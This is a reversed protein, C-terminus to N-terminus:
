NHDEPLLRMFISLFSYLIRHCRASEEFHLYHYPCLSSHYFTHNRQLPLFKHIDSSLQACLIIHSNEVSYYYEKGLRM